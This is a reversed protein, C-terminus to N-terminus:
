LKSILRGDKDRKPIFAVVCRCNVVNEASANPDGPGSMREGAVDFLEQEDIITGDVERHADRVKSDHASIWEKNLQFPTNQISLFRAASTAHLSETRAIMKARWRPLSDIHSAMKEYSWGSRIGEELVERIQNRSTETIQIVLKLLLNRNFYAIIQQIWDINVGLVGGKIQHNSDSSYSKRRTLQRIQKLYWKIFYPGVDTYLQMLAQYMNGDIIYNDIERLAAKFGHKEVVSLIKKYQDEIITFIIKTHKDEFLKLRSQFLASYTRREEYNM